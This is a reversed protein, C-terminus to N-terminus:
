KMMMVCGEAFDSERMPLTWDELLHHYRDLAWAPLKSKCNGSSHDEFVQDWTRVHFFSCQSYNYKDKIATFYDKSFLWKDDAKEFFPDTKDELKMKEWVYVTNWLYNAAESDLRHSLRKFADIVKGAFTKEGYTYGSRSLISRYFSSVIDHGERFPEFFVATGGPKLLSYAQGFVKEPNFLHHLVAAGIIFDFSNGQFDLREANLQMLHCRNEYGTGALNRKLKALMPLSLESAFVEASPFIKLIPITASGFGAGVELINMKGDKSTFSLENLAKNILGEYLNYLVFDQSAVGEETMYHDSMFRSMEENSFVPSFVGKLSDNGTYQGMDTLSGNFILEIRNLSSNM